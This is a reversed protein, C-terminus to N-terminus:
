TLMSNLLGGKRFNLFSGGRYGVARLSVAHDLDVPLRQVEDLGGSQAVLDASARATQM